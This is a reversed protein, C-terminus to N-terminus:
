VHRAFKAVHCIVYTRPPLFTLYSAACKTYKTTDRTTHKAAVRSLQVLFHYGHPAMGGFVEAILPIVQKGRRLAHGDRQKVFGRGTKHDFAGDGPMGLQKNGPIM